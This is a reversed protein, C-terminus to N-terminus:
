RSLYFTLSQLKDSCIIHPRLEMPFYAIGTPKLGIFEILDGNTKFHLLEGVVDQNHANKFSIRSYKEEVLFTLLEM